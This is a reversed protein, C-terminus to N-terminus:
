FHPKCSYVTNEKDRCLIYTSSYQRSERVGTEGIGMEDVGMEDVTLFSKM